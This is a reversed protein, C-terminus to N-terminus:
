VRFLVHERLYVTGGTVEVTRIAELSGLTRRISRENVDEGVHERHWTPYDSLLDAEAMGAYGDRLHLYEVMSAESDSLTVSAVEDIFCIVSLCVLALASLTTPMETALALPVGTLLVGKLNFKVNPAKVSTTDRGNGVLFDMMVPDTVFEVNDDIARVVEPGGSQVVVFDLLRENLQRAESETM